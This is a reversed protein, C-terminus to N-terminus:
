KKTVTVIISDRKRIVVEEGKPIIEGDDTVARWEDGDVKVYGAKEPTIPEIVTGTRGILADANSVRNDHGQHVYKVVFPRVCFVCVASAVAFVLVQVWLPTPFLSTIISCAAGVAFCMLYFTGSSVELILALVCILTWVLWLNSSLYDIM